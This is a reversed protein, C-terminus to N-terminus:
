QVDKWTGEEGPGAQWDIRGLGRPISTATATFWYIRGPRDVGIALYGRTAAELNLEYFGNAKSRLEQVPEPSGDFPNTEFWGVHAGVRPTGLCDDGECRETLQGYLGQTITVQPEVESTLCGSLLLLPLCWRM